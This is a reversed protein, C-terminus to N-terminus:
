NIGMFMLAMEGATRESKGKMVKKEAAIRQREVRLEKEVQYIDREKTQKINKVEATEEKAAMKMEALGALTQTVKSMSSEQTKLMDEALKRQREIEAQREKIKGILKALTSYRDLDEAPMDLPLHKFAQETDIEAIMDHIEFDLGDRKEDLDNFIKIYEM